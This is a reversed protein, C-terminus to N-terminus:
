INLATILMEFVSFMIILFDFKNFNEAFYEKMGLGIMKIIMDGIFVYTFMDNYYNLEDIQAKTLPYRDCALVVMNALSFITILITFSNHTCICHFVRQFCGMRLVRLEEPVEEEVNNLKELAEQEERLKQALLEEKEAETEEIEFLIKYKAMLKEKEEKAAAVEEPTDENNEDFAESIVVLILNLLFFSGLIVVIMCYIISFRALTADSLNYMLETWGELTIVTFLTFLAKGIDDFTMQGYAILPDDTM